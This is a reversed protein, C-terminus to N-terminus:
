KPMCAYVAYACKHQEHVLTKRDLSPLMVQLVNVLVHFRVTTPKRIIILKREINLQRIFETLLKSRPLAAPRCALPQFNNVSCGNLM